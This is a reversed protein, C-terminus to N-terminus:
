GGKLSRFSNRIIPFNCRSQITNNTGFFFRPPPKLYGRSPSIIWIAWYKESPNFDGGLFRRHIKTVHGMWSWLKKSVHNPGFFFLTKLSIPLALFYIRNTGNWMSGSFPIKLLTKKKPFAHNEQERKFKLSIDHHIIKQKFIRIAM